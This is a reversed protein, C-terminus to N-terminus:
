PKVKERARRIAKEIHEPYWCDKGNIVRRFGTSLEKEVASIGENRGKEILAEKETRIRAIEEKRKNTAINFM